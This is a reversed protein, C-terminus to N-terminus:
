LSIKLLDSLGELSLYSLLLYDLWAGKGMQWALGLLPTPGLVSSFMWTLFFASLVM